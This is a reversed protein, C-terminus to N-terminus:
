KIERFTLISRIESVLTEPMEKFITLELDASIKWLKHSMKCLAIVLKCTFQDLHRLAFLEFIEWAYTEQAEIDEKSYKWFRDPICLIVMVHALKSFLPKNEGVSWTNGTRPFNRKPDLWWNTFGYQKHYQNYLETTPFPIPNVVSGFYKLSKPIRKIVELNKEYHERKEWPFGVINNFSVCTFSAEELVALGKEISKVSYCKNVLKLTEDNWSEMGINIRYFGAKKCLKLTDLDLSSIRCRVSIKIDLKSSIILECLERTRDKKFLAEDDQFAFYKVGYKDVLLKMEDFINQASRFRVSNEFVKHSCCFTCRFPCGRSSFISWFVLNSSPDSSGTYNEIPFDEFSPLTLDDLNEIISRPRTNCIKGDDDTFYIGDIDELNKGNGVYYDALELITIEGEGKVVIDVSNNLVEEPLATAHPGGAVLPIGLKKLSKLYEYTQPIYDVVLTVGIFDPGFDQIIASVQEASYSKFPATADVIKVEHGYKRLSSALYGLGLFPEKAQWATPPNLLLVRAKKDYEKM